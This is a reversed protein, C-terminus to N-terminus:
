DVGGADDDTDAPVAVVAGIQLLFTLDSDTAFTDGFTRVQGDVDVPAEGVVRYTTM